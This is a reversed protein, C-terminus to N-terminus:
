RSTEESQDGQLDGLLQLLSKLMELAEDDNRVDYEVNQLFGENNYGV